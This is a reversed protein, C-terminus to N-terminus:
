IARSRLALALVAAVCSLYAFWDGYRTYLTKRTEFGWRGELVGPRDPLIESAIQGDPRIIVTIGTIIFQLIQQELTM